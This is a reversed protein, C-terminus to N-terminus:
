TGKPLIKRIKDAEVRWCALIDKTSANQHHHHGCLHRHYCYIVAYERTLPALVRILTPASCIIAYQEGRRIIAYEM